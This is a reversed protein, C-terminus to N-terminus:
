ENGTLLDYRTVKKEKLNQACSKKSVFQVLNM